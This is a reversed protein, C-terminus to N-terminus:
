LEGVYSLRLARIPAMGVRLEHCRFFRFAKQSCDRETLTQLVDRSRPGALTLVGYRSTVNELRVSDDDPLHHAIWAYDHRETTTPCTTRSGRTTM